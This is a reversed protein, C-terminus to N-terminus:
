DALAEAGLADPGTEDNDAQQLQREAQRKKDAIHRLNEQLASVEGLWQLRHAEELREHTNREIQLLRPMQAPAMRLM